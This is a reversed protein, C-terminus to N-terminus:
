IIPFVPSELRPLGVPRYFSFDLILSAIYNIIEISTPVRRLLGVMPWLSAAFTFQEAHYESPKPKKKRLPM